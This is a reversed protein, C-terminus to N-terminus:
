FIIKFLLIIAGIIVSGIIMIPFPQPDNNKKEEPLNREFYDHAIRGIFYAVGLLPFAFLMWFDNGNSGTSCSTLIFIVSLISTLNRM